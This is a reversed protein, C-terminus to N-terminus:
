LYLDEVRGTDNISALTFAGEHHVNGPLWGEAKRFISIEPRKPNQSVIVYEELSEIAQYILFNEVRDRKADESLVEVILKPRNLFYTDNDEPDCGVVIDPYYFAENRLVNVFVKMGSKFVECPEGRLHGFLNAFLGGSVREHNKSAGAMAYVQGGLYEHRIESIKEGELYEEVSIPDPCKMVGRSM